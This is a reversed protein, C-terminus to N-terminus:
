YQVVDRRAVALGADVDTVRGLRVGDDAVVLRVVVADPDEEAVGGVSNTSSLLDCSLQM